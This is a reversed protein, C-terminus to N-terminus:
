TSSSPAQLDSLDEDPKGAKNKLLPDEVRAILLAAVLYAGGVMPVAVNSGLADTVRGYIMPIVIGGITAASSLMSAAVSRASAECSMTALALVYCGCVRVASIAGTLVLFRLFFGTRQIGILSILMVGGVAYVASAVRPRNRVNLRRIWLSLFGSVLFPIATMIIALTASSHKSGCTKTDEDDEYLMNQIILTAWFMLTNNVGSVILFSFACVRWTGNSVVRKVAEWFSVDCENQHGEQSEAIWEKEATELFPATQPSAPLFFYVLVAYLMPMIGEVVFLLRWGKVNVYPGLSLLGASLPSSLPMSFSITGIIVSYANTVHEPPYFVPIIYWMAPFTGGEAIGLVFRLVYFQMTNQIFGLAAAVSGWAFLIFSIWAPAGFRQLMVNGAVQSLLYGVYFLSVGKGYDEHTLKLDHCLDNAAYGINSRDIYSLFTVGALLLLFRRDLKRITSRAADEALPVYAVQSTPSRM